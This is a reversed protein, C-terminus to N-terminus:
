TQENSSSVASKNFPFALIQRSLAQELVIVFDAFQSLDAGPVNILVNLLSGDRLPFQKAEQM